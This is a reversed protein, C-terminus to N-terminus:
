SGYSPLNVNAIEWLPVPSLTNWATQKYKASFISSPAVGWEEALDERLGRLSRLDPLRRLVRVQYENLIAGGVPGRKRNSRGDIYRPHSGRNRVCDELNELHNGWRLNEPMNNTHIDDYHLVLNKGEPPLGHFALCILRAVTFRKTKGEKSLMVSHRGSDKNINPSLQRGRFTRTRQKQNREDLVTRDVSRINGLSSAEYLNEYGPIPKWIEEM